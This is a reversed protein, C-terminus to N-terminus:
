GEIQWDWPFNRHPADSVDETRQFTSLVAHLKLRSEWSQVIFSKTAVPVNQGWLSKGNTFLPFFYTFIIFIGKILKSDTNARVSLTIKRGCNQLWWGSVTMAFTLSAFASFKGVGSGDWKGKPFQDWFSVYGGPYVFSKWYSLQNVTRIVNILLNFLRWFIFLHLFFLVFCFFHWLFLMCTLLCFVVIAVFFM